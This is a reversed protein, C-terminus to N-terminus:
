YCFIKDFFKLLIHTIVKKYLTVLIDETLNIDFPMRWTWKCWSVILIHFTIHCQGNNINIFLFSMLHLMNNLFVFSIDQYDISYVDDLNKLKVKFYWIMLMYHSNFLFQCAIRLICLNLEKWFIKPCVIIWFCM